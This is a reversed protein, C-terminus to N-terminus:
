YKFHRFIRRFALKLRLLHLFWHLHTDYRYHFIETYSWLYIYHLFIHDHPSHGNPFISFSPAPCPVKILHYGLIGQASFNIYNM